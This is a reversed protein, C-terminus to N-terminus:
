NNFRLFIMIESIVRLFPPVRFNMILIIALFISFLPYSILLGQIFFMNRTNFREYILNAFNFLSSSVLGHTFIIIISIKVRINLFIFLSLFIMTIHNISSYAILSKQDVQFLCVIVRILAGILGIILFINIVGKKFIFINLIRILGYTGIKLLIAALIISGSVPAEVHAKPLWLHLFYIPFKVLFISIIVFYIFNNFVIINNIFIYNNSNRLFYTLLIFFPLSFFMTYILLYIRAQIREVQYGWGVIIVIIPILSV